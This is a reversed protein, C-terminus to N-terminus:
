PWGQVRGAESFGWAREGPPCRKGIGSAARWLVPELLEEAVVGCSRGGGFPQESSEAALCTAVIRKVAGLWLCLTPGVRATM